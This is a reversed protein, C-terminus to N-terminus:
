LSPRRHRHRRAAARLDHAGQPPGDDPVGGHPRARAAGRGHDAGGRGRLRGPTLGFLPWLIFASLVAFGVQSVPHEFLGGARYKGTEAWIKLKGLERRLAFYRFVLFAAGRYRDTRSLTVRVTGDEGALEVITAITRGSRPDLSSDDVVRMSFREGEVVDELRM